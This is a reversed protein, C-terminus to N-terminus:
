RAAPTLRGNQLRYVRDLREVGTLRHTIMLVTRGELTNNLTALFARETELDLGSCPEDLILIPAPSLLTRALALRRGQGGSFQSGQEGVWAELGDPLARVMDAIRAAELAAWLADDDADDRGILLNNRITDAFLHTTQSLWAIRRRVDASRLTAIDTGGLRIQGEDPSVLKLALAALTSKGAGSPGLVAIRSGAPIDLSLDEFVAQGEPTWRFAVHEFALANSGPMPAPRAPDRVRPEAEAAQMVRSAAASARGATVGARPMGGVVEFAAVVVFVAVVVAVPNAGHILLVALLAAQTALFALGQLAGGRAALDREARFLRSEQWQVGALMRGEAEYVKIERLGTLTDLVSVRLAGGAETEDAAAARAALMARWPMVFAVVAFLVLVLAAATEDDRAVAVLLVPVLMAAGLLPILLRLLVGDLAEIDNVLRALVDGSRRFGLGGAASRALGRYFWLRLAALARFTADHTTLRELYRLVVRAVGTVELAVPVALTIGLAAAAIYHGAAAMLAIGAALSALAVLAGFVIAPAQRRWILIVRLLPALVSDTM